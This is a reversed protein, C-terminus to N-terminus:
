DLKLTVLTVGDGGESPEAYRFSKVHPHDMLLDRVARKLAGTGRGHIVRVQELGALFADDLYKDLRRKAEDTTSGILNIQPSITSRKTLKIQLLQPPTLRVEDAPEFREIDSIPVTLELGGVQILAEGKDDRIKVLKGAANLSKVRILDGPNFPVPKGETEEKRQFNRRLNEVIQHARKISEKSAQERRIEQVVHEITKRADSIIGEAEERAKRIIEDRQREIQRIMEEYRRAKEEAASLKESLLAQEHELKRRTEEMGMLMKEIAVAGAGMYGKAKELIEGPMGLKRAIRLANSSGPVGILLRYTPKLTQVDFEVSANEMGPQNHAHVKLQSHHTTAITKAGISHFYDLLAMGLAAGEAPDTGAGLEDLLILSDPDAEHIIEIIRSIHSSFTSLNQEISQEDGIDAFVKSWLGVKSREQAPIHLGSLAMLSLLGVTKLAVTKGGTNPGTIVLTNFDYGLYVDIPVVRDPQLADEDSPRSRSRIAHELIPHRARKLDLIGDTNIEPEYCDYDISFRAKASIFDLEGLLEVALSLEEVFGRVEESLDLLIRRIEREEDAALQHITNNLDVVSLPELFLTAGSSSVGQVVGQIMGKFEQKVPIVYRNNRITVIREQIAQGYQPSSLISELRRQLEDRAKAMQRRIRRLEPSASELVEGEPSIRSSISRVVQSLSPLNSVFGKLNPALEDKIDWFFKRVKENVEALNLLALFDYPDLISGAIRLRILLPRIDSLGDLPLRGFSLIVKKAESCLSLQHKIEELEDLPCLEAIRSRGLDSLAYSSIIEKLKDFELTRGPDM